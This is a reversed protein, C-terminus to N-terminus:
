EILVMKRTREFPGATLRYYYVGSSARHGSEMRGDWTTEKRGPAQVGDVLTRVLRGAVDYVRITVRGGPAPVDCRISTAPNFPNPVCQYLEYREPASGAEVGTGPDQITVEHDEVEGDDAHGTPELDGASSIRFRAFSTGLVADAPVPVIVDHPGDTMVQAVIMEGADWAEDINFDIWGQVYGGGGGVDVVITADEGATLVPIYVGGEDDGELDDDGPAQAHPQGDTEADPADAGDGLWPGGIVHRAGDQALQTPYGGWSAPYEADGFDLDSQLPKDFTKGIGWGDPLPWAVSLSVWLLFAAARRM